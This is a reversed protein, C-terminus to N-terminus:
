NEWQGSLNTSFVRSLQVQHARAPSSALLLALSTHLLFGPVSARAGAASHNQMFSRACVSSATPPTVCCLAADLDPRPPVRHRRHRRRLRRPRQVCRAMTRCCVARSLRVSRQQRTRLRQKREQHCQSHVEALRRHSLQETPPILALLAFPSPVPPPVNKALAAELRSLLNSLAIEERLRPVVAWGHVYRQLPGVATTGNSERDYEDESHGLEDRSSDLSRSSSM